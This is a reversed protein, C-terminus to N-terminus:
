FQIELSETIPSFVALWVLLFHCCAKSVKNIWDDKHPTSKSSWLFSNYVLSLNISIVLLVGPNELLLTAM